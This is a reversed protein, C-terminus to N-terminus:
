LVGSALAVAMVLLLSGVLRQVAALTVKRMWRAGLWAGLFASATAAALLTWGSSEGLVRFHMSFFSSGYVALRAVDVLVACTVGTGIFGEKSLGAKILFASRLAGQHGSLGGFLGSMAGGLPIYRRPFALQRRAPLLDFSAFVFIAKKGKPGIELTVRM